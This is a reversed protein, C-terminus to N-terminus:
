CVAASAPHIVADCDRLSAVVQGFDTLDAIVARATPAAESTVFSVYPLARDLSVVAHGQALLYPALARGLEGGAGTVAIQM